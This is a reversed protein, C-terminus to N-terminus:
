WDGFPTKKMFDKGTWLWYFPSIVFMCVGMTILMGIAVAFLAPLWIPAAFVILFRQTRPHFTHFYDIADSILDFIKKKM